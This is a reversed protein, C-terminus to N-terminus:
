QSRRQELPGQGGRRVRSRRRGATHLSAVAARHPTRPGPRRVLTAAPTSRTVAARHRVGTPVYVARSCPSISGVDFGQGSSLACWWTRRTRRSRRCSSKTGRCTLRRTGSPPRFGEFPSRRDREHTLAADLEPLDRPRAAVHQCTRSHDNEDRHYQDRSEDEREIEARARTEVARETASVASQRDAVRPCEAVAMRRRGHV